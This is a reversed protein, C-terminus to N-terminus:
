LSTCGCGYHNNPLLPMIKYHLSKQDEVSILDVNDLAWDKPTKLDAVVVVKWGPAAALKRITDTPYNITTVVIWKDHKALPGARASPAAQTARIIAPAVASHHQAHHTVTVRGRSGAALALSVLWFAAMAGARIGM